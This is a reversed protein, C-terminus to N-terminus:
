PKNCLPPTRRRAPGVLFIQLYSIYYLANLIAKDTGKLILCIFMIGVLSSREQENRSQLEALKRSATLAAWAKIWFRSKPRKHLSNRKFARPRKNGEEESLFREGEGTGRDTGKEMGKQKGTGTGMGM